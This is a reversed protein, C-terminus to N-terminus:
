TKWRRGTSKLLRLIGTCFSPCHRLLSGFATGAIGLDGSRLRRSTKGARRLGDVFEPFPTAEAVEL